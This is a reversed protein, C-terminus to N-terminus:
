MLDSTDEYLEPELVALLELENSNNLAEAMLLWEDEMNNEILAPSEYNFDFLGVILLMIVLVTATIRTPNVLQNIRSLLSKKFGSFFYNISSKSTVKRNPLIALIRKQLLETDPQNIASDMKILQDDLQLEQQQIKQLDANSLLLQQLLAREDVPWKKPNAGYSALIQKARENTMM